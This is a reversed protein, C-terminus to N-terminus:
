WIMRSGFVAQLFGLVMAAFVLGDIRDLVGGHGPILTGSDKVGARRKFFSKFLDGGQAFAALVIALFLGTVYAHAGTMLLVILALIMALAMGGIFGSWTKGPSIAPALKPGGVLKGVVYGGIDMGWVVAVLYISVKFGIAPTARLYICAIGSGAMYPLGLAFWYARMPEINSRHAYFAATGIALAILGFVPLDAAALLLILVLVAFLAYRDTQPAEDDVLRLWEYLGAGMVLMILGAYAAGGLCLVAIVVPALIAASLLRLRGEPTNLIALDSAKLLPEM